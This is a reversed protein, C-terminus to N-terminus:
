VFEVKKTRFGKNQVSTKKCISCKYRFDVKKSTKAGTRKWASIPKRSYKGHNGHGSTGSGRKELRQLAGKKLSGRNAKKAQSVTHDTHKKCHKCYCKIKKTIKM